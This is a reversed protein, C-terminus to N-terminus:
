LRANTIASAKSMARKAAERWTSSGTRVSSSSGSDVGAQRGNPMRSGGSGEGGGGSGRGVINNAYGATDAGMVGCEAAPVAAAGRSDLGREEQSAQLDANCNMMRLTMSAQKSKTALHALRESQLEASLRQYSLSMSQLGTQLKDAREAHERAVRKWHQARLLEDAYRQKLWAITGEPDDSDAAQLNSAQPWSAQWAAADSTASPPPPPRLTSAHASPYALAPPQSDYDMSLIAGPAAVPTEGYMAYVIADADSRGADYGATPQPDRYDMGPWDAPAAQQQLAALDAEDEESEAMLRDLGDDLQQMWYEIGQDDDSSAAVNVAEEDSSAGEM